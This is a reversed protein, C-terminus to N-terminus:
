ERRRPPMAALWYAVPYGALLCFFSVQLGLVFSNGLVRLYGSQRVLREYAAFSPLHTTPDQLSLLLLNSVPLVFFAMLFVIGPAALWLPNFRHPARRVIAAICASAMQM